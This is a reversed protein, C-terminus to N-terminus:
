PQVDPKTPLEQVGLMHSYALWVLPPMRRQGGEWDQVIRMSYFGLEGFATQTLGSDARLAKVMEPTPNDGPRNRLKSRNQHNTM